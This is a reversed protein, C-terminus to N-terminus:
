KIVESEQQPNEKGINRIWGLSRIFVYVCVIFILGAALIFYGDTLWSFPGSLTPFAAFTKDSVTRYVIVLLIIAAISGIVKIDKNSVKYKDNTGEFLTRFKPGIKEPNYPTLLSLGIYLIVSVVIGIFIVPIGFLGGGAFAAGAGGSVITVIFTISAATINGWFAAKESMRRWYTSLLIMPALSSCILMQVMLATVFLGGNKVMPAIAMAALVLLITCIRGGLLYHSDNKDKKIYRKYINQMLIASGANLYTSVTSMVAAAVATIFLASGFLPLADKALLIVVTDTNVVGPFLIRAYAGLALMITAWITILIVFALAAKKGHKVTKAALMRQMFGLDTPMWLSGALGMAIIGLVSIGPALTFIDTFGAWLDVGAAPSMGTSGLHQVWFTTFAGYKSFIIPVFSATGFIIIFWQIQDTFVVARLGGMITYITTVTAVIAIGVLWPVGYVAEILLAGGFLCLAISFVAWIVQWISMLVTLRKSGPYREEALDVITTFNMGRYRSGLRVMLPYIFINVVIFFWFMFSLGTQYSFGAIGLVQTANALTALLTMVIVFWPLGRGGLIFDNFTKTKTKFFYGVGIMGLLYIIMVFTIIFNENM